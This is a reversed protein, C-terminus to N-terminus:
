REICTFYVCITEKCEKNCYSISAAMEHKDSYHFPLITISNYKAFHKVIWESVAVIQLHYSKHAYIRM